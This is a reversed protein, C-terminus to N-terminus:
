KRLRVIVTAVNTGSERFTGAPLEEVVEGHRRVLDRFAASAKDQKTQWGPAMIATLIGGTALISFATTVHKIDQGSTFPPNMVIREIAGLDDSPWRGLMGNEVTMKSFDGLAVEYGQKKLVACSAEDLEACLVKDCGAIMCADALAGHGASPEFVLRDRVDAIEVVRKAVSEPTYFAQTASKVNLLAGKELAMGLPERPDIQFVHAQKGTHWKGGAKTLVKAVKKWLDPSLREPGLKVSSADITAAKLVAMTEPDITVHHKM